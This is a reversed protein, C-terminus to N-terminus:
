NDRGVLSSPVKIIQEESYAILKEALIKDIKIQLQIAFVSIEVGNEKVFTVGFNMQGIGNFM